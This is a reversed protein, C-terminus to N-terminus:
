RSILKVAAHLAEIIKEPDGDEAHIRLAGPLPRNAKGDGATLELVLGKANGTTCAIRTANRIAGQLTRLENQLHPTQLFRPQLVICDGADALALHAAIWSSPSAAAQPGLTGAARRLTQAHVPDTFLALGQARLSPEAPPARAGPMAPLAVDPLAGELPVGELLAGMAEAAIEWRVFEGFLASPSEVQWQVVPHGAEALYTMDHAESALALSIFLRDPGYADKRGQPEGTVPTVGGTRRVIQEAMWPGLSALGPSPLLTLKDAGGRALGAAIAGLRVAFNDELPLASDLTVQEAAAVLSALDHGLLAAPLLGSFGLAGAGAPQIFTRWCTGSPRPGAAIAVFQASEDIRKRVQLDLDEAGDGVIFLTKELDVGDLAAPAASDLVRLDLGGERKGLIGVVAAATLSGRGLVVCHRFRQAAERAFASLEALDGLQPRGRAALPKQRALELGARAEQKRRGLREVVKM